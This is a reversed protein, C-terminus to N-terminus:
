AWRKPTKWYGCKACVQKNKTKELQYFFSFFRETGDYSFKGKEATEGSSCTTTTTTTTWRSGPGSATSGVRAPKVSFATEGHTHYGVYCKGFLQM